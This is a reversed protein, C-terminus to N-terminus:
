GVTKNAAPQHIGAESVVGGFWWSSVLELNRFAPSSPQLAGHNQVGDHVRQFTVRSLTYVIGIEPAFCLVDVSETRSLRTLDRDHILCFGLVNDIM